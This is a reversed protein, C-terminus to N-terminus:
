FPIESDLDNNTSSDEDPVSYDDNDSDHEQEASPKLSYIGKKGSVSYVTGKNIMRWLKNQLFKRKQVVGNRRYLEILIADIDIDADAAVFIDYIQQELRDVKALTLEKLLDEPLDSIDGFDETIIIPKLRERAATLEDVVARIDAALARNRTARASEGAEEQRASTNEYQSVITKVSELPDPM